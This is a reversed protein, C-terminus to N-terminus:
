ELNVAVQHLWRQQGWPMFPCYTRTLFLSVGWGGRIGVEPNADGTPEEQKKSGRFECIALHKHNKM